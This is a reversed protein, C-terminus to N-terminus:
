LMRGGAPNKLDMRCFFGPIGQLLRHFRKTYAEEGLAPIKRKKKGNERSLPYIRTYTIIDSM